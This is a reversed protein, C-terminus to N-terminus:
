TKLRLYTEQVIGSQEAQLSCYSWSVSKQTDGGIRNPFASPICGPIAASFSCTGRKLFFVEHRSSGLFSAGWQPFRCWVRLRRRSNHLTGTEGVSSGEKGSWADPRYMRDNGSTVSDPGFMQQKARHQFPIAFMGKLLSTMMVVPM